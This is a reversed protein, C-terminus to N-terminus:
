VTSQPATGRSGATVGAAPRRLGPCIAISGCGCPSGAIALIRFAAEAGSYRRSGDVLQIAERCDAESLAAFRGGATQYPQYDVSAGTRLRAYDVCYRCFRCDGDYLLTSVAM